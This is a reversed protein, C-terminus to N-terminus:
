LGAQTHLGWFTANHHRSQTHTNTLLTIEYLIFMPHHFKLPIHVTCFDGALEFKLTVAERPAWGWFHPTPSRRQSFRLLNDLKNKM